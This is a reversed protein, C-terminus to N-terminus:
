AARSVATTISTLTTARRRPTARRERPPEDDRWLDGLLLSDVWRLGEAMLERAGARDRWWRDPSWAEREAARMLVVSGPPLARRLLIATRRTHSRYTVVILRTLGRRRAFAAVSRVSAGTGGELLPEVSVAAPRVGSRTLVDRALEWPRPLAVKLRDAIEDEPGPRRALLLIRPAWGATVLAAGEAAALVPHGGLLVVLDAKAPPTEEVVLHGVWALVPTRVVWLAGGVLILLVIAALWRRV